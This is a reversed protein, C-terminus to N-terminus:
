RHLKPRRHRYTASALLCVVALGVLCGCVLGALWCYWSCFWFFGFVFFLFVFFFLFGFGFFVFKESVITKLVKNKTKKTKKNKKTRKTKKGGQTNQNDDNIITDVNILTISLLNELNEKNSLIKYFYIYSDSSMDKPFTDMIIKFVISLQAVTKETYLKNIETFLKTKNEIDLYSLLTKKDLELNELPKDKGWSWGYKTNMIVDRKEKYKAEISQKADEQNNTFQTLITDYDWDKKFTDMKNKLSNMKAKVLSLGTSFSYEKIFDNFNKKKNDDFDILMKFFLIRYIKDTEAVYDFFKKEFLHNKLIFISVCKFLTAFDIDINTNTIDNINQIQQKINDKNKDIEKIIKEFSLNNKKLKWENIYTGINLDNIKEILEKSKKDNNLYFLISNCRDLFDSRASSKAGDFSQIEQDKGIYNTFISLPKILRMGLSPDYKCKSDNNNDNFETIYNLIGKTKTDPILTEATDNFCKFVYDEESPNKNQDDQKRCMVGTNYSQFGGEGSKKDKCYYTQIIQGKMRSTLRNFGPVYTSAKEIYSMPKTPKTKEVKEAPNISM